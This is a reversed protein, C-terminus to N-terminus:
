PLGLCDHCDRYGDANDRDTSCDLRDHGYDLDAFRDREHRYDCNARVDSVSREVTVKNFDAHQGM